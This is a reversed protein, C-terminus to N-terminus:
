RMRRKAPVRRGPAFVLPLLFVGVFFASGITLTFMVALRVAGTFTSLFLTAFALISTLFSLSVPVGGREAVRIAFRVIGSPDDRNIIMTKLSNLIHITYDVTLGTTISVIIITYEDIEFGFRSALGTVALLISLSPIMSVVSMKFNRFFLLVSLFILLSGVAFSLFWNGKLLMARDDLIKVAGYLAIEWEPPLVEEVERLTSTFSNISEMDTYALIGQISVVRFGADILSEYESPAASASYFLLYQEILASFLIDDDVIPISLYAPDMENFYYHIREIVTLVSHIHGIGDNNSLLFQAEEVARLSDPTLFTGPGGTDIEITFPITGAFKENLVAETKAVTSSDPFHKFSYPQLKLGPIQFAAYVMVALFAIGLVLRYRALGIISRTIVRRIRRQFRIAKRNEHQGQYVWEIRPVWWLAMAYTILISVGVIVAVLLHGDDRLLLLSTFGIISTAATLTLPVALYRQIEGPRRGGGGTGAHYFVHVLYDSLLGINFPLVLIISPTIVLGLASFCSFAFATSLAKIMWSVLVIRINRFVAAYLTTVLLILLPMVKLMDRTLFRETYVKIPKIGTMEFTLGFTEEIEGQLRELDEVLLHSPYSLGPELYFATSSFDGSLFPKIEPFSPYSDRLAQAKESDYNTLLDEGIFPLVLIEDAEALVVSTSLLTSYSRIFEMRGIAKDVAALLQLNEEALADGPSSSFDIVLVVVDNAAAPLLSAQEEEEAISISTPAKILPYLSLLM